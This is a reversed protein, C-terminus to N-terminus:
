RFRVRLLVDAGFGGRFDQEGAVSLPGIVEYELRLKREDTNEIGQSYILLTRSTLRRGVRLTSAGTEPATDVELVDFGVRGSPEGLLERVVLGAAEGLILGAGRRGLEERTAGFAVLALVDEEPLPPTSTMRVELDDARGTIRLRVDWTRIRGTAQVDLLPDIRRPDVFRVALRELEFRQRRFVLHGERATLTGFVIPASTTGQLQLTGGAQLRVVDTTVVLNDQLELRVDLHIGGTTAAGAPRRDLVLQLLSLDRDYTGRLLRAEGRVQARAARGVLELDADWVTSLGDVAEVPVRRAALSFRYGGVARGELGLEGQARLEGGRVTAVAETVRVGGATVVFRASVDRLVDDVGAIVFRGGTIVGEGGPEPAALRGGIRLTVDLTGAAERIEPRLSPLVALPVRGRGHVDLGGDDRVTGSAVLAGLPGELTVPELRTRGTERRVVVPDRARWAEGAVSVVLSPLRITGETAAVDGPPVRLDAEVSTQVDLDSAAPLWRRLYPRADVDRAVVQVRLPTALDLPGAASATLRVAPFGVDASVRGDRLTARGTGPGLTVGAVAVDRADVTVTGALGAPGLALDARGQVTGAPALGPTDALLRDLGVPAMQVDVHGTGQWRWAGAGTLPVRRVRAAFRSVEIGGPDAAFTVTADEVTEGRVTLRPAHVRGRAQWAALTGELRAAAELPGAAPWDAPLWRALDDLRAPGARLDAEVRLGGRLAEGTLPTDAPVVLVADAEVRTQGLWAEAGRLRLTRQALAFPVAVRALRVGRTELVPVTARGTVAPDTWAGRIEGTAALTGAADPQGALAALRGLAATVDARLGQAEALTARGSVRASVGPWTGEAQEIDLGGDRLRADAQVTGPGLDVLTGPLTVREASLRVRGRGELPALLNGDLEVEGTLVGRLGVDRAALEQIALLSVADLGLRARARAVDAGPLRVSGTLRGGLAEAAVDEVSLTAGDWAVSGTASRASFRGARVSPLAVRLAAAPGSAPGTVRGEVRAVGDLAVATGALRGLAALGVRGRVDLALHLPAALDVHGSVTLREGAWRAAARDVHLRGGRLRAAAAVAELEGGREGVGLRVRAASAGLDLGGGAPSVRVDLADIGISIAGAPDTYSVTAGELAATALRATVPGLAVRDPVEAPIELPAGGASAVLAIRPERLVARLVLERHWLSALSVEVDLGPAELLRGAQWTPGAAVALGAVRVRGRWPELTVRGIRVPRGLAGTLAAELRERTLSPGWARAAYWLGAASVALLVIAGVVGAVLWRRTRPTVNSEDPDASELCDGLRRAAASGPIRRPDYGVM